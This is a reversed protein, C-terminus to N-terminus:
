EVQSSIHSRSRGDRFRRLATLPQRTGEAHGRERQGWVAVRDRHQAASRHQVLIRADIRTVRDAYVTALLGGGADLDVFAFGLTDLRRRDDVAGAPLIRVVLENWRLPQKCADPVETVEAPLGCELWAVQISARELIASATRHATRIDGESDPQTYTRVVISARSTDTMQSAEAARSWLGGDALIGAAALLVGFFPHRM